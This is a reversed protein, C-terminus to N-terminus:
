EDAPVSIAVAGTGAVVVAFEAVVTVM